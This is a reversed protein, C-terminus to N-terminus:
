GVLDTQTGGLLRLRDLVQVRRDQGRQSQVGVVEEEFVGTALFAQGPNSLTPLGNGANEASHRPLALPPFRDGGLEYSREGSRPSGASQRSSSLSSIALVDSHREVTAREDSPQLSLHQNWQSKVAGGIVEESLSREKRGWAGV